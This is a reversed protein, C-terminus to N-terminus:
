PLFRRRAPFDHHMEEAKPHETQLVAPRSKSDDLHERERCACPGGGKVALGTCDQHTPRVTSCPMCSSGFVEERGELHALVGPHITRFATLADQAVISNRYSGTECRQGNETYVIRLM